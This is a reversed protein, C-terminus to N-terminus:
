INIYFLNIFDLTDCLYLKENLNRYVPGTSMIINLKDSSIYQWVKQMEAVVPNQGHVDNSLFAVDHFGHQDFVNLTQSEADAAVVDDM